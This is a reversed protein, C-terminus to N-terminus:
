VEKLYFIFYHFRNSQDYRFIVKHGNHMVHDAKELEKKSLDLTKLLQDRFKRARRHGKVQFRVKTLTKEKSIVLGKVGRIGSIVYNKIEIIASNYISDPFQIKFYEGHLQDGPLFIADSEVKRIYHEIRTNEKPASDNKQGFTFTSLFLSLFTLVISPHTSSLLM